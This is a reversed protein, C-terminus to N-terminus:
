RAETGPVATEEEAAFPYLQTTEGTSSTHSWVARTGDPGDGFYILRRDNDAWGAVSGRITGGEADRLPTLRGTKAEVVAMAWGAESQRELICMVVLWRGSPSWDLAEFPGTCVKRQRPAMPNELIYLVRDTGAAEPQGSTGEAACLAAVRTGDPSGSIRWVTQDPLIEYQGYAASRAYFRYRDPRPPGGLAPMTAACCSLTGSGWFPYGCRSLSAVALPALEGTSRSYEQVRLMDAGSNQFVIRDGRPALAPRALGHARAVPSWALTDTDLIGVEQEHSSPQRAGVFRRGDSSWTGPTSFAMSDLTHEEHRTLDVVSLAYSGDPRWRFLIM